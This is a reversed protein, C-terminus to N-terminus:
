KKSYTGMVEAQAVIKGQMAKELAAKDAGDASDLKDSLAYLYFYYRHTGSPPCMGVYANKGSGGKGVVAGEPVSNEAISVVNMPINFMVWHTFGGPVPADPDHLILALSKAESPVGSIELPPNIGEGDCAYKKPIPQGENFAASTIKMSINKNNILNDPTTVKDVTFSTYYLFITLCIVVLVLVFIGFKKM